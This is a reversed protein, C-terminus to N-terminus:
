AYGGWSGGRVVRRVDAVEPDERGDDPRYPYPRYASSTWEWVNGTMDVLGEPTDGAPSCERHPPAGCTRRSSMAARRTSTAQGRMPRGEGRTGLKFIWLSRATPRGRAAAEWEAETPLRYPQGSQASLWACYARAEYWCIGVVPQAPHNFAPDDWREPRTQRGPPYWNELM